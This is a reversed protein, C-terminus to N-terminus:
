RYYRANEDYVRIDHDDLEAAWEDLEQKVADATFPISANNKSYDWVNIVEFPTKDGQFYIDIYAGGEYSAKLKRGHRTTFAFVKKDM